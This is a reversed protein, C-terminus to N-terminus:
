PKKSKQIYENIAKSIHGLETPNQRLIEEALENWDLRRRGLYKELSATMDPGMITRRKNEQARKHAESLVDIVLSDIRQILERIAADSARMNKVDNVYSKVSNFRLFNTKAM